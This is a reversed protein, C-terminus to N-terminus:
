VPACMRVCLRNQQLHAVKKLDLIVVQVTETVRLHDAFHAGVYLVAFTTPRDDCSEAFGSGFLSFLKVVIVADMRGFRHRPDFLDVALQINFFLIAMVLVRGEVTDTLENFM